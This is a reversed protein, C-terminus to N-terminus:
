PAINIETASKSPRTWREGLMRCCNGLPTRALLEGGALGVTDGVVDRWEGTRVGGLAQLVEILIGYSLGSSFVALPSFGAARFWFGLGAFALAHEAKDWFHPAGAPLQPVLCL